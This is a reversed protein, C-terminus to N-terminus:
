GRAAEALISYLEVAKELEVKDKLTFLLKDTARRVATKIKEDDASQELEFCLEREFYLRIDDFMTKCGRLRMWESFRAVHRELIMEADYKMKTGLGSYGLSDMDFLRVGCIQGIAPEIDRPVALDFIILGGQPPVFSEARLVYRPCATASIVADSGNLAEYRKEYPVLEAAEPAAAHDHRPKRWTMMVRAGREFLLQACCMGMEGSGIILVNKDKLSGLELRCKDVALQAVSTAGRRNKLKSRIEKGASIASLFLHDLVAVNSEANRSQNLANKLQGLIQEELPVQSCLGAAVEYLHCVAPEGDLSFFDAEGRESRLFKEPFVEGYTWLVTRNCTSLLVGGSHVLALRKLLEHAATSTFSFRERVEIPAGLFDLGAARIKM